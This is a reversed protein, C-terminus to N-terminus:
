TNHCRAGYSEFLRRTDDSANEHEAGAGANGRSRKEFQSGRRAAGTGSHPRHIAHLSIQEQIKRAGTALGRPKTERSRKEFLGSVRAVALASKAARDFDGRLEQPVQAPITHELLDINGQNEEAAVNTWIEPSETLNAKAQDLFAPLM